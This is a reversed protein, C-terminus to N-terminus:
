PPHLHAQGGGHRHLLAPLPPDPRLAHRPFELQHRVAPAGPQAPPHRLDPLALRHPRAARESPVGARHLLLLDGNAPEQRGDGRDGARPGRSRCRLEANPRADARGPPVRRHARRPLVRRLGQQRALSPVRRSDRAWIVRRLGGRVPRPRRPRLAPTSRPRVVHCCPVTPAPQLAPCVLCALRAAGLGSGRKLRGCADRRPHAHHPRERPPPTGRSSVSPVESSQRPLPRRRGKVRRAVPRRPAPARRLSRYKWGVGPPM